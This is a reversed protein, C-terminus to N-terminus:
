GSRRRTADNGGADCFTLMARRRPPLLPPSSPAPLVPRAHSDRLPAPRCAHLPPAPPPAPLPCPAPRRPALRSPSAPRVMRPGLGRRAASVGAGTRRREVGARQQRRRLRAAGSAPISEAACHEFCPPPPPAPPPWPRRARWPHPLRSASRPERPPSTHISQAAPAPAPAAPASHIEPPPPTPHLPPPTRALSHPPQPHAPHAIARKPPPRVGSHTESRSRARRTKIIRAQTHAHSIAHNHTHMDSLKVM